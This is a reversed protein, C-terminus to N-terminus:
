QVSPLVRVSAVIGGNITAKITASTTTTATSQASGTADTTATSPTIDGADITFVVVVNPVGHGDASLVTASVELQQAFNSAATLNISVPVTSLAPNSPTTPPPPPEYAECASVVLSVALCACLGARSLVRM